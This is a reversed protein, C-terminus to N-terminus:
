PGSFMTNLKADYTIKKIESSEIIPKLADIVFEPSLQGDGGVPVYFAKTKTDDIESISLDDTYKLNENIAFAFGRLKVEIASQTEGIAKLAFIRSEDLTKILKALGQADKVEEKEYKLDFKNMETQVAESFLGLQGNAQVTNAQIQFPRVDQTKLTRDFSTLISNINRLFSYFQMKTLFETVAKVDPLEINTLSFDFEIDVNRIITALFQSLKAIDKGNCIKDRM